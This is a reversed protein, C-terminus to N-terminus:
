RRRDAAAAGPERHAVEGALYQRGAIDVLLRAQPGVVQHGVDDLSEVREQLIGATAVVADIADPQAQRAGDILL